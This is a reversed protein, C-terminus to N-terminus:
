WGMAWEQAADMFHTPGYCNSLSMRHECLPYLVKALAPFAELNFPAWEAEAIAHTSSRASVYAAAWADADPGEFTVLATHRNACHHVELTVRDVTAAPTDAPYRRIHDTFADQASACTGDCYSVIGHDFDGDHLCGVEPDYATCEGGHGQCFDAITYRITSTM